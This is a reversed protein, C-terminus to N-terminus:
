NAPLSEWDPLSAGCFPCFSIVSLVNCGGGCCGPIDALGAAYPVIARSALADKMDECCIRSTAPGFAEEIAAQDAEHENM